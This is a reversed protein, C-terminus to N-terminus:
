KLEDSDVGSTGPLQERNFHRPFADTRPAWCITSTCLNFIAPPWSPFSILISMKEKQIDLRLLLFLPYHKFLPCLMASLLEQNKVTEPTIDTEICITFQINSSGIAKVMSPFGMQIM